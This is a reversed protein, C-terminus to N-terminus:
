KPPKIPVPETGPQPPGATVTGVGFGEYIPEPGAPLGIMFQSLIEDLLPLLELTAPENVGEEIVLAADSPKFYERSARVSYKGPPLNKYKVVGEPGTLATEVAAAEGTVRYMSVLAGEIPAAFGSVNVRVELTSLVPVEIALTPVGAGRVQFELPSRLPNGPNGVIVRFNGDPVNKFKFSGGPGTFTEDLISHNFENSGSLEVRLGELPMRARDHVLGVVDPSKAIRITVDSYPSKPSVRVDSPTGTWGTASARIEYAAWPLGEALFEGKADVTIDRSVATERGAGFRSPRVWVVLDAPRGADASEIRVRGRVTGGRALQAASPPIVLNPDPPAEAHALGDGVSVGTAAEPVSARGGFTFRQTPDSTFWIVGFAVAVTLLLLFVLTPATIRM